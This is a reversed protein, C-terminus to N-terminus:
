CDKCDKKKRRRRKKKTTTTNEEKDKCCDCPATFKALSPTYDWDPIEMTSGKQYVVGGYNLNQCIVKLKM